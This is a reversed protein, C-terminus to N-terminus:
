RFMEDYEMIKELYSYKVLYDSKNKKFNKAGSNYAIICESLDDSGIYKKQRNLTWCGIKVNIEDNDLDTESYATGNRINYDKLAIPTVQMLGRANAKSKATSKFHSEQCILALITKYDFGYTVSHEKVLSMISWAKGESISDYSLSIMDSIIEKDTKVYPESVESVAVTLEHIMNSEVDIMKNVASSAMYISGDGGDYLTSPSFALLLLSSFCLFIMGFALKLKERSKSDIFNVLFRRDNASNFKFIITKKMIKGGMITTKLVDM